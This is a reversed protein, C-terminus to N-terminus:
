DKIVKITRSALPKIGGSLEILQNNLNENFSYYEFSVQLDYNTKVLFNNTQKLLHSISDALTYDVTLSFITTEVKEVLPLEKINSAVCSRYARTLGGAGLKIGGFYRVVVVLIEDLNNKQLVDLMPFGATKNPEGDDSFRESNESLVRLAYCHHNAKPHEIKLQALLEQGHKYSTIPYFYTIFRSKNIINEFQYTKPLYKRM